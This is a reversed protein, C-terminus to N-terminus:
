RTLARTYAAWRAKVLRPADPWLSPASLHMLASARRFVDEPMTDPKDLHRYKPGTCFPRLLRVMELFLPTWMRQLRTPRSPNHTIGVTQAWHEVDGVTATTDLLVRTLAARLHAHHTSAPHPPVYPATTNAYHELATLHTQLRRNFARLHKAFTWLITVWPVIATPIFCLELLRRQVTLPAPEDTQVNRLDALIQNRAAAEVDSAQCFRDFEEHLFRGIWSAPDDPTTDERPRFVVHHVWGWRQWVARHQPDQATSILLRTYNLRLPELGVGIQSAQQWSPLDCFLDIAALRPALEGLSLPFARTPVAM